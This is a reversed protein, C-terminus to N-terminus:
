EPNGYINGIVEIPAMDLAFTPAMPDWDDPPISEAVFGANSFKVVAREGDRVIGYKHGKVEVIDGEYIDKGNKDKLGSYQMVKLQQRFYPSKMADAFNSQKDSLFVIWDNGDNGSKIFQFDHHMTMNSEDWARFKIERMDCIQVYYKQYAFGLAIIKVLKVRLTKKGVNRGHFIFVYWYKKFTHGCKTRDTPFGNLLNNLRVSM